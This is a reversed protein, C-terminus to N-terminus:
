NESYSSTYMADLLRKYAGNRKILEAHSGQEAIKGRDMVIIRDAERITSLRHAVIFSTRGETMEHFARQIKIETRTDISSTAEDLILMPANLLMVRAICLLQKQGQSLGASSGSDLLTNYGQPLRKIFNHAHAKKAANIVDEDTAEDSGYAINDRVTGGFLWTDQLVMGFKRRLCDVDMKSIDINDITIKGDSIDYFRMLLNILTTKGCGTPGIIAIKQGAKVSINLDQIFPVGKVYSFCVNELEVSGHCKKPKVAKPDPAKVDIDLLEIVRGASSYATQLQMMIGSVENFPKAYQNAYSLFMSIQGVTLLGNIANIAGAIGVAAYVLSNVFRMSPNVFASYIQAKLGHGYLKSNIKEFGDQATSEYSYAKILKQNALKESVYGTLEGQTLTQERFHKHSGKAIFSTVFVSLPTLLVVLLSIGIDTMFMFILTGTITIIGTFCQNLGQLIGESILDIDNVVRNIVDGHPVSDIYSIDAKNIKAFCDNRLSAATKYAIKHNIFGSLWQFVALFVVCAIITLLIKGLASFNVNGVGVIQDIANGTLVPIMLSLVVWVASFILSLVIGLWYPKLYKMLRKLIKM